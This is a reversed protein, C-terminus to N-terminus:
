YMAPLALPLPLALKCDQLHSELNATYSLLLSKCSEFNLLFLSAPFLGLWAWDSVCRM